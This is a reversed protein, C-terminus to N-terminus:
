LKPIAERALLRALTGRSVRYISTAVETILRDSPKCKQFGLRLCYSYKQIKLDEPTKIRGLAIDEAIRYASYFAAYNVLRESYEPYTGEYTRIAKVLAMEPFYGLIVGTFAVRLVRFIKDEPSRGKLEETKKAVVERLHPPLVEAVERVVQLVEEAKNEIYFLHDLEGPTLVGVGYVGVLYVTAIEKDYLGERSLGRLPEIGREAYTRQLEAVLGSRSTVAGSLVLELLSLAAEVRDRHLLRVEM